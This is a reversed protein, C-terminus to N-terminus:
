AASKKILEVYDSVTRLKAFRSEYAENWYHGLGSRHELLHRITVNTALEDRLGIIYRGIQDDLSLKQKEYLQYIAIKTFIKNISGINFKTTVKNPVQYRKSALGYAEKLLPQNSKVILIAGSFNGAVTQDKVYIKLENIDIFNPTSAVPVIGMLSIRYPEKDELHYVIRLRMGSENSKVVLEARLPDTKKAGVLEFEGLSQHTDNFASLHVELSFAELFSETFMTKIFERRFEDDEHDIADLIASGMKGTPSDPLGWKSQAHLSFGTSVIVSLLLWLRIRM